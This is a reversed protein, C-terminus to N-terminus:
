TRDLGLIRIVPRGNTDEFTLHEEPRSTLSIRCPGKYIFSAKLQDLSDGIEGTIKGRLESEKMGISTLFEQRISEVTGGTDAHLYAKLRQAQGGATTSQEAMGELIRRCRSFIELDLFKM